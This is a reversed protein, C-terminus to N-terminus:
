HMEGDDGRCKPIVEWGEPPAKTICDPVPKDACIGCRNPNEKLFQVFFRKGIDNKTILDGTINEGTYRNGQYYFYYFGSKGVRGGQYKVDTIVAITYIGYKNVPYNYMYGVICIVILFGIVVLLAHHKKNIKIKM